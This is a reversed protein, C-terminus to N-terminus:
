GCARGFSFFRAFCTLGRSAYFRSPLLSPASQRLGIILSGQHHILWSETEGALFRSRSGGDTASSESWTIEGTRLFLTGGHPMAQIANKATGYEMYAPVVKLGVLAVIRQNNPASRRRQMTPQRPACGPRPRPSGRRASGVPAPGASRFLEHNVMLLGDAVQVKHTHSGHPAPWPQSCGPM